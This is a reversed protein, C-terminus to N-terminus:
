KGEASKAKAKELLEKALEAARQEGEATLTAYKCKKFTAQADAETIELLKVRAKMGGMKSKQQLYYTKGGEVNLTLTSINEAKTWFMHKGPSVYAFTFQRGKTAGLPKEDAFAWFKIAKGMMQPRVFYVLAKGDKPEGMKTPQVQVMDGALVPPSAVLLAAVVALLVLKKM